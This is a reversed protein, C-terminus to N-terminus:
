SAGTLKLPGKGVGDHSLEELRRHRLRVARRTIPHQRARGDMGRAHDVRARLRRRDRSLRGGHQVAQVPQGGVQRGFARRQQDDVVQM